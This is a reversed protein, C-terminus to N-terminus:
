PELAIRVRQVAKRCLRLHVRPNEVAHGEHRARLVGCGGLANNRLPPADADRLFVAGAAQPESRGVRARWGPGRGREM